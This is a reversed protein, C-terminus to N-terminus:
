NRRRQVARELRRRTATFSKVWKKGSRVARKYIYPESGDTLLRFDHLRLFGKITATDEVPGLYYPSQPLKGRLYKRNLGCLDSFDQVARWLQDHYKIM